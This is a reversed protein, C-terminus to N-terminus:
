PQEAKGPDQCNWNVTSLICSRLQTFTSKSWIICFSQLLKQVCQIGVVQELSYKISTPSLIPPKVTVDVSNWDQRNLFGLRTWWKAGSRKRCLSPRAKSVDSAALFHQLTHMENARILSPGTIYYALKRTQERRAIHLQWECTWAWM